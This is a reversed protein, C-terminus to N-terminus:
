DEALPPVVQWTRDRLQVARGRLQTETLHELLWALRGQIAARTPKKLAIVVIGPHGPFRQALTHFFDRDTTLVVAGREIALRMVDQDPAGEQGEDRFDLVEHGREELDARATKPFNEDFLFIM